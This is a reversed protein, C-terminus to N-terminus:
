ISHNTEPHNTERDLIVPTQGAMQDGDSLHNEGGAKRPAAPSLNAAADPPIIGLQIESITMQWNRRKRPQIQVTNWGQKLMQGPNQITIQYYYKPAPQASDKTKQTSSAPKSESFDGSTSIEIGNISVSVPPTKFDGSTFGIRLGVYSGSPIAKPDEGIFLGIAKAPLTTEFPVQKKPEYTDLHDYSYAPTVAYTRAKTLYDARGLLSQLGPVWDPPIPLNFNYLEFGDVGMTMYNLAAGRILAGDPRRSIYDATEPAKKRFGYTYATRSYISYYVKIGLPRALLVFEYVPNDHALTMIQAPIVAQVIGRSMWQRIDLGMTECNKITAPVRVILPIRHGRVTEAKDLAMRVQALFDTMLPSKAPIDKPPFFMPIRMFDLLFGDMVDQYRDIAERIIGLRNARVEPHSYDLLEKYYDMKPEAYPPKKFTYKGRHTSWFEGALWGYGTNAYHGDNMRLVPIFPMGLRRADEAAWRVGDHGSQVARPFAAFNKSTAPIEVARWGWPSGAKSPYFMLDTGSALAYALSQAPISRLDDLMKSLNARWQEPTDGVFTYDGDENLIIPGLEPGAPVAGSAPAAASSIGAAMSLILSVM